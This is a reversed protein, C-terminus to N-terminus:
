NRPLLNVSSLRSCCHACQTPNLYGSRPVLGKKHIECGRAVRSEGKAIVFLMELIRGDMIESMYDLVGREASKKMNERELHTEQVVRRRLEVYLRDLFGTFDHLTDVLVAIMVCTRGAFTDVVFMNLFGKQFEGHVFLCVGWCSFTLM